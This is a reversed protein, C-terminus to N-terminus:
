EDMDLEIRHFRKKWLNSMETGWERNLFFNSIIFLQRVKWNSLSCFSFFHNFMLFCCFIQLIFLLVSHVTGRFALLVNQPRRRGLERRREEKISDKKSIQNWYHRLRWEKLTKELVWSMHLKQWWKVNGFLNPCGEM